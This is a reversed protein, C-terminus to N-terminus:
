PWCLQERRKIISGPGVEHKTAQSVSPSRGLLALALLGFVVAATENLTGTVGMIAITLTLVIWPLMTSNNM